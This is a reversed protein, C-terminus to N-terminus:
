TVKDVALQNYVYSYIPKRVMDGVVEGVVEWSVFKKLHVFAKDKKRDCVPIDEELVSSHSLRQEKGCRGKVSFFMTIESPIHRRQWPNRPGVSHCCGRIWKNGTVKFAGRRHFLRCGDDRDLTIFRCSWLPGVSHFCGRIWKNGTAKFAGHRHFLRCGDDRDSTIFRNKRPGVSHCCGQNM